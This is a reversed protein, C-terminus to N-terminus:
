ILARAVVDAVDLGRESYSWNDDIKQLIGQEAFNELLAAIEPPIAQGFRELHETESFGRAMRLRFIFFEKQAELFDIYEVTEAKGGNSVLAAYATLEAPNSRRVGYVYSAAGAGWGWYSEGLWYSLNHRSQYGPLAYNSIEYAEYGRQRLRSRIFHYMERETEVDPLPAEGEQYIEGFPTGEEIILSYNSLHPLKLELLFDLDASVDALTQDPLASMLDASINTFGAGRATTLTALFEERTHIRGIKALGSNSSTQLGISLRNFGARFLEDLSISDRTGPNMELTIECGSALERRSRITDLIRILQGASLVSPTGGGFYITQIAQQVGTSAGLDRSIETCLYETYEETGFDVTALPYSVFDCYPCKNICYPIHIYIHQPESRQWSLLGRNNTM